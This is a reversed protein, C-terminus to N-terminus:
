DLDLLLIGLLGKEQKPKKPDTVETESGNEMPVASQGNSKRKQGARKEPTVSPEDKLTSTAKKLLDKSTKEAESEPKATAGSTSHRLSHRRNSLISKGDEKQDDKAKTPQKVSSNKAKALPKNSVPNQHRTKM